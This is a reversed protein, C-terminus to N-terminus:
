KCRGRETRLRKNNVITQALQMNFHRRHPGNAYRSSILYVDDAGINLKSKVLLANVEGNKTEKKIKLKLKALAAPVIDNVSM